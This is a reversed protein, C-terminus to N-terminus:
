AKLGITKAKQPGTTAPSTPIVRVIRFAIRENTTLQVDVFTGKHDEKIALLSYLSNSLETSLVRVLDLKTATNTIKPTSANIAPSCYKSKLKPCRKKGKDNHATNKRDTGILLIMLVHAVAKRHKLFSGKKNWAKKTPSQQTDSIYIVAM